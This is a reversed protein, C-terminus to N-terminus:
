IYVCCSGSGTKQQKWEPQAYVIYCFRSFRSFLLIVRLLRINGYFDVRAPLFNMM